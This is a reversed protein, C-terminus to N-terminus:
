RFRESLTESLTLLRATSEFVHFITQRPIQAVNPLSLPKDSVLTDDSDGTRLHSIHRHLRKLGGSGFSCLIIDERIRKPPNDTDIQKGYLPGWRILSHYLDCLAKTISPTTHITVFHVSDGTLKTATIGGRMAELAPSYSFLQSREQANLPAIIYRLHSFHNRAVEILQTTRDQMSLENFATIRRKQAEDEHKQALLPAIVKNVRSELKRLFNQDESPSWEIINRMQVDFHVRLNGNPDDPKDKLHDHRATYIVPILRQAYGAEFYVSPRAYTLDVLAFDAREIEAIIRDDINDNHEIQDVRIPEIQMSRLTKKVADYVADTDQHSVSFGRLLTAAGRIRNEKKGNPHSSIIVSSPYPPRSQSPGMDSSNRLSHNVQALM